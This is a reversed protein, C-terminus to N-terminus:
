YCDCLVALKSGECALRLVFRCGHLKQMLTQSQDVIERRKRAMHGTVTGGGHGASGALVWGSSM